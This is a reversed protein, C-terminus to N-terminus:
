EKESALHSIISIFPFLITINTYYVDAAPQFNREIGAEKAVLSLINEDAPWTVVSLLVLRLVLFM